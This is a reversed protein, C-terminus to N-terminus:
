VFMSKVQYQIYICTADDVFCICITHKEQDGEDWREGLLFSRVAIM